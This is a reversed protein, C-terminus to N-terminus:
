VDRLEPISSGQGVVKGMTPCDSLSARGINRSPVPPCNGNIVNLAVTIMKRDEYPVKWTLLEWMVIAFSYVDTKDSYKAVGSIIEPATYWVSSL